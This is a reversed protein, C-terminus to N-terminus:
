IAGGRSPERPNTGVRPPTHRRAPRNPVRLRRPHSASNPALSRGANKEGSFSSTGFSGWLPPDFVHPFPQIVLDPMAAAGSPGLCDNVAMQGLFLHNTTPFGGCHRGATSRRAPPGTQVWRRRGPRDAALSMRPWQAPGVLAGAALPEGRRGSFEAADQVEAFVFFDRGPRSTQLRKARQRAAQEVFLALRQNANFCAHKIFLLRAFLKSSRIHCDAAGRLSLSPRKRM